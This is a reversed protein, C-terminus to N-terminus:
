SQDCCPRPRRSYPPRCSEALVRDNAAGETIEPRAAAEAGAAHDTGAVRAAFVDNLTGAAGAIKQCRDIM